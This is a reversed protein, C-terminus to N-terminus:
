VRTAVPPTLFEWEALWWGIFLSSKLVNETLEGDIFSSDTNRLCTSTGLSKLFPLSNGCNSVVHFANGMM